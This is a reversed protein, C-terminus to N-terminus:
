VNIFQNPFLYKLYKVRFGTNKIGVYCILRICTMYLPLKLTIQFKKKLSKQHVPKVRIVLIQIM